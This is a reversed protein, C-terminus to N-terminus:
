LCGLLARRAPSRSGRNPRHFTPYRRPKSRSNRRERLLRGPMISQINSGRWVSWDTSRGLSPNRGYSVIRFKPVYDAYIMSESNFSKIPVKRLGQYLFTLPDLTAIDNCEDPARAQGGTRM